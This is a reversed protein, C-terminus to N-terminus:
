ERDKLILSLSVKKLHMKLLVNTVFYCVMAFGIIILYTVPQIKIFIFGQINSICFPWIANYIGLDIPISIIVSLVVTYFISGLYLKNIERSQYGFIKILSIHNSSKDIIMKLLLYMVIIYIVVALTILLVIMSMMMETMNNATDKLQDSSVCTIVNGSDINLETDTYVMNY